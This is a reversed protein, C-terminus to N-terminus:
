VWLCVRRFVIAYNITVCGVNIYKILSANKVFIDNLYIVKCILTTGVGLEFTKIVKRFGGGVPPSLRLTEKVVNNLYTLKNLQPLSLLSRENDDASGSCLLGNSAMEAEIKKRADEHKALYYVIYTQTSSTTGHGAFLLELFINKIEEESIGDEEFRFMLGLADRSDTDRSGQLKRKQIVEDLKELLKERALKGQEIFM